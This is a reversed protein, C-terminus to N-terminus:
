NRALTNLRLDSRVPFHDSLKTKIICYNDVEINRTTAIYDIQFNPFKGNYTQGFGKGKKVFANHLSDTMKTVAYSAPTDNFDGCIVYPTSCGKMHVKMLDVQVSRKEFARKLMHLIRKSSAVETEMGKVKDIYQYDEKEFSISQLHINYVRITQNQIRLDAYISGNGLSNEFRIAGKNEIPYKSFIAFGTAFSTYDMTPVFYYYKTNMIKKLTDITNFPGKFRTFFEQFCVVDPNQKRIVAIMKQTGEKSLEEGFPKFSHVNYTMVRILANEAKTNEGENGFLGITAFLTSWGVLIAVLTTMAYVWKKRFLWLLLFIVNVVLLFPYALGTFAILIHDIPDFYGAFSGCVLAIASFIALLLMLKNFFSMKNQKKM